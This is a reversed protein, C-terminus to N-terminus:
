SIRWALRLTPDTLPVTELGKPAVAFAVAKGTCVGLTARGQITGLVVDGRQAQRPGVRRFGQDAAARAAIALVGGAEALVADCGAADAYRGRFAASPDHGTVAAIAASAFLCCDWTGYSFIRSQADTILATLRHEWGERRM